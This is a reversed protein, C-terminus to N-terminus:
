PHNAQKQLYLLMEPTLDKTQSIVTAAGAALLAESYEQAYAKGRRAVHPPLVGVGLYALQDQQRAAQVTHMDAVTDGIYVVLTPSTLDASAALQKAIALLGTPNPKGPVDEMALLPPDTLGIRRELVYSASSRTAGSFFGWYIGAQRLAEFYEADVLLPEQTIYGQWQDPLLPDGGRYRDQFFSVLADFDLKAERNEKGQAKFHRLILEQSAEWDNNWCGERKLLDIDDSSPRYQGDTFHEVTDAIARRYSGSVDRLVGDIDFVAICTM